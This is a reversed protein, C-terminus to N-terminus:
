PKEIDHCNQSWFNNSISICCKNNIVARNITDGGFFRHLNSFLFLLSLSLLYWFQLLIINMYDCHKHLKKNWHVARVKAQEKYYGPKCETNKFVIKICTLITQQFVKM